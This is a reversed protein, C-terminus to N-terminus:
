EAVIGCGIGARMRDQPAAPGAGVRTASIGQFTDAGTGTSGVDFRRKPECSLVEGMNNVM